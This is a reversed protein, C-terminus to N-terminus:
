GFLCLRGLFFRRFKAEIAVAREQLDKLEKAMIRNLM